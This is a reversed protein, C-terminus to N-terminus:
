HTGESTLLFHLFLCLTLCLDCNEKSINFMLAIGTIMELSSLISFSHSVVAVRVPCGIKQYIFRDIFNLPQLKPHM